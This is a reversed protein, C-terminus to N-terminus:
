RKCDDPTVSDRPREPYDIFIRVRRGVLSPGLVFRLIWRKELRFVQGDLRTGAELRLVRVERRVQAGGRGVGPTDVPDPSSPIM